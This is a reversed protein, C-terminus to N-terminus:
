AIVRDRPMSPHVIHTLIPPNALMQNPEEVAMLSMCRPLVHEFPEGRRMSPRERPLFESVDFSLDPWAEPTARGKEEVSFRVQYSGSLPERFVVVVRDIM